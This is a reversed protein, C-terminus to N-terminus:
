SNSSPPAPLFSVRGQLQMALRAAERVSMGPVVDNDHLTGGFCSCKRLQHALGGMINALFCERHWPVRDVAGSFHHRTCHLGSDGETVLEECACCRAGVPTPGMLEPRRVAIGWPEPGFYNM